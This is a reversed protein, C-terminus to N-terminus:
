LNFERKTISNSLTVTEFDSLLNQTMIKELIKTYAEGTQAYSDLTHILKLGSIYNNKKRLEYRKKRFKKYGQHTNLNNKYSKVSARLIPFRLIKHSKGAERSLPAIGKGDWTWQGFIANGELAFRSTGWGSEKAAQALAISVPIIDMRKELELVNGKKVKYELLKQRLWLKEKDNTMKKSIIKKLKYRDDLIKKNEAVVLPLVIKIFTDKKLKVNQIEDLDKPFQTFYIPKVKKEFRVKKLDYNVDEFLNLVTETKLNLNPLVLNTLEKSKKKKLREKSQNPIKAIKEEKTPAVKTEPKVIKKNKEIKKVKQKVLQEEKEKKVKKTENQKLELKQEDFKLAELRKNEVISDLVSYSLMLVILIVVGTSALGIVKNINKEDGRNNYFSNLMNITAKAFRTFFNGLEIVVDEFFNNKFRNRKSFFKTSNSSLHSVTDTIKNGLINFPRKIKRAQIEILSKNRETPLPVKNKRLILELQPVTLNKKNKTYNRIETIRYLSALELLRDRYSLNKKM